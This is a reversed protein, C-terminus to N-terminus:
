RLSLINIRYELAEDEFEGLATDMNSVLSDYIRQVEDTMEDQHSVRLNFGDLEATWDVEKLKARSRLSVTDAVMFRLRTVCGADCVALTCLYRLWKVCFYTSNHLGVACHWRQSGVVPSYIYLKLWLFHTDAELM